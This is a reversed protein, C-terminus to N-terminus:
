EEEETEEADSSSSLFGEGEQPMRVDQLQIEVGTLRSALMINQGMKGIALSRQDQALWIVAKKGVVEVKDIEAPKM